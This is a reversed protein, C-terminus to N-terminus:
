IRTLLVMNQFRNIHYLKLTLEIGV